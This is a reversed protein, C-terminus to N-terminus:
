AKLGFFVDFRFKHAAVQPPNHNRTTPRRSPDSDTGTPGKRASQGTGNVRPEAIEAMNFDGRSKGNGKFRSSCLSLQCDIADGSHKGAGIKNESKSVGAGGTSMEKESQFSKPKNPSSWLHGHACVYLQYKSASRFNRLTEVLSLAFYLYFFQKVYLSFRNFALFCISLM